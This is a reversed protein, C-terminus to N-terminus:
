ANVVEITLATLMKSSSQPMGKVMLAAIMGIWEVSADHVSETLRFIGIIHKHRLSRCHLAIQNGLGTRHYRDGMVHIGERIFIHLDIGIAFLYTQGIKFSAFLKDM